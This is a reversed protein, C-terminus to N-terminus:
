EGFNHRHVVNIAGVVCVATGGYFTPLRPLTPMEPRLLAQWDTQVLWGDEDGAESM